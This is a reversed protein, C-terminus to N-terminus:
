PGSSSPEHHKHPHLLLRTHYKRARSRRETRTRMPASTAPHRVAVRRSCAVLRNARQASRERNPTEQPQRRTAPRKARCVPSMVPSTRKPRLRWARM